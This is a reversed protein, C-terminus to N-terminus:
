TVATITVSILLDVPLTIEGEKALLEVFDEYALTLSEMSKEGDEQAALDSGPAYVIPFANTLKWARAITSDRNYMWIWIDKRFDMDSKPRIKDANYALTTTTDAGTHVLAAWMALEVHTNQPMIGRSLVIDEMSSLGPSLALIDPDNGERYQVKNTNRKPMQVSHFGSKLLPTTVTVTKTADKIITKTVEDGFWGVGFRFKELIDGKSTRVMGVRRSVQQYTQQLM